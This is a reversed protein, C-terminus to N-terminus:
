RREIVRLKAPESRPNFELEQRSPVIPKRTVIRYDSRADPTPPLFRSVEARPCFSEFLHKVQADDDSNFTIVACRGGPRLFEIAQRIAVEMEERENNVEFRIAMFTQKAPHGPKHLVRAPLARRVANVLDMTTEFPRIQRMSVISEAIARAHREGGYDKLIRELEAQSYTNVVDKATLKQSQDMRMDLPADYRYSFGREPDDFQPSSVGTDFLIFDAGSVDEQKLLDIAHAFDIRFCRFRGPYYEQLLESSASIAEADRDIGYLMADPCQGLMQCAHGARGLTMDVIIKVSEVPPMNELVESALVPIHVATQTAGLTQRTGLFDSSSM